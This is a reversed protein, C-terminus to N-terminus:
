THVHMAIGLQELLGEMGAGPTPEIHMGVIKDRDFRVEMTEEPLNVTKNTAPAEVGLFPLDLKGTQKGTVHYHVTVKDEREEIRSKPDSLNLSFDPMGRTLAKLFGIWEQKGIPKPIAGSFKFDDSIMKSLKKFDQKEMLSVCEKFIQTRNM